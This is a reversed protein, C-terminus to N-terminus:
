QKLWPASDWMQILQRLVAESDTKGSGHEQFYRRWVGNWNNPGTHVGDPLLSTRGKTVYEEPELGCERFRNAFERVLNHHPELDLDREKRLWDIERRLLYNDRASPVWDRTSIYPITILPNQPDLERLVFRNHNYINSRVTEATSLEPDGARGGGRRGRAQVYRAGPIWSDEPADSIVASRNTPGDTFWDVTRNSSYPDGVDRYAGLKGPAVDGPLWPYSAEPDRGAGSNGSSPVDPLGIFGYAPPFTEGWAAGPRASQPATTDRFQHSSVAHPSWRVNIDQSLGSPTDFNLRQPVEFANPATPGFPTPGQGFSMAPPDSGTATTPNTPEAPSSFPGAVPGLIGGFGNSEGARAALHAGLLGGTSFAPAPRPIPASLDTLGPTWPPPAYPTAAGSFLTWDAFPPPPAPNDFIPSFGPLGALVRM